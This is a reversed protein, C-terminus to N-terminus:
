FRFADNASLIFVSNAQRGNRNWHIVLVFQTAPNYTYYSRVLKQALDTPELLLLPIAQQKCVVGAVEAVIKDSCRSVVDDADYGNPINMDMQVYGFYGISPGHANWHHVIAEFTKNMGRIAMHRCLANRMAIQAATVHKFEDKSGKQAKAPLANSKPAHQDPTNSITRLERLWIRVVRWIVTVVVHDWLRTPNGVMRKPALEFQHLESYQNTGKEPGFGCLGRVVPESAM